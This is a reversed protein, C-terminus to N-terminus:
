KKTTETEHNMDLITVNDTKYITKYNKAMDNTYKDNNLSVLYIPNNPHNERIGKVDYIETPWGKFGTQYLFATDGNYPAIILSNQPIINKIEKGVEIMRYNNIIYYEKVQYYSFAVMSMFVTTTLFMSIIKNKSMLEFLRYFGIGLIISIIPIILSQYYDHQINGRAIVSFFLLIGFAGFISILHNKNKQQSFGLILATVGYSGLILKSTREYFLWRFWAPRFRMNGDNFLWNSVPIGEPFQQIWRRWLIFPALSIISFLVLKLFNSKTKPQLLKIFSFYLLIPFIILATYPKVLIALAFFIASIVLNINFFYLTLISFLNATPEPLITRSYFINFPLFLYCSLTLAAIIFSNTQKKTFLFLFFAALLSAIISTLRSNFDISVQPNFVSIIKHFIVSVANYIPFEVMRYGQINEKGSQINSLDHYKPHLLDIGNELFLKTVSATDAQRFSHWDAVPQDVKYLRVVLGLLLLVIIISNKLIKM